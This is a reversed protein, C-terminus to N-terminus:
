ICIIYSIFHDKALSFFNNLILLKFKKSQTDRSKEFELNSTIRDIHGEFEMKKKAREQQTRLEREEYQRINDVGIQECFKAFVVDEVNNMSEKIEQIKQDRELM